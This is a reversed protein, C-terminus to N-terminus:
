NSAEFPGFALHGVDLGHVDGAGMRIKDERGSFLDHGGHSAEEGLRHRFGSVNGLTAGGRCGM